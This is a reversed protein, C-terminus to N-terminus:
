VLLGWILPRIMLIIGQLGNGLLAHGITQSTLLLSMAGAPMTRM